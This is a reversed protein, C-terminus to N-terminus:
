AIRRTRGSVDGRFPLSTERRRGSGMAQFSCLTAFAALGVAPVPELAGVLFRLALVGGWLWLLLCLRAWLPISPMAAESNMTRM